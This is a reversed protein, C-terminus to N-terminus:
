SRAPVTFSNVRLPGKCAENPCDIEKGLPDEEFAELPHMTNCHPCRIEFGKGKHFDTATV